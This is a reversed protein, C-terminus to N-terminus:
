APQPRSRFASNRANRARGRPTGPWSGKERRNRSSESRHSGCSAPSGPSAVIPMASAVTVRSPLILVSRQKKNEARSPAVAKAAATRAWLRMSSLRCRARLTPKSASRARVRRSLAESFRVVRRLSAEVEQPGGPGVDRDAALAGAQNLSERGIWGRVGHWPPRNNRRLCRRHHYQLQRLRYAPSAAGTPLFLPNQALMHDRTKLCEDMTAYSVINM